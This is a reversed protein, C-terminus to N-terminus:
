SFEQNPTGGGHSDSRLLESSSSLATDVSFDASVRLASGHVGDFILCARRQIGSHPLFCSICSYFEHLSGLVLCSHFCTPQLCNTVTAGFPSAVCLIKERSAKQPGRLLFRAKTAKLDASAQGSMSTLIKLEFCLLYFM